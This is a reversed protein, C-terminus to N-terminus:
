YGLSLTDGLDLQELLLKVGNIENSKRDLYVQVVSAM